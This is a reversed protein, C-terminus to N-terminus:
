NLVEALKRLLEERAFPKKLIAKPEPDFTGTDTAGTMYIIPLTYHQGRLAEALQPGSMVAMSVDTLLLDIHTNSRFLSMAEMGNAAVLPKYNADILFMEILMRMHFEDDVIVVKKDQGDFQEMRAISETRTEEVAVPLFVFFSTGGTGTKVDIAGGHEKAIRQAMPLGLGTGRGIEKSTYFPTWINPLHEPPIGKGTDRIQFVVFVGDLGAENFTTNQATIHLEGGYPEMEDRANIVINMLLQIIQTADCRVPFTGPVTHITIRINKPFSDRIMSGLETMLYEAKVSKMVNGNTGRVFASIQNSMETGRRGTSQMADLVRSINPPLIDFHETLAQRLIETGSVFVQLLNRLDHNFGAHMHGVLEIRNDSMAQKRLHHNEHARVVADSLRALSDKLLDNKLFYDVAGSRLYTSATRHDISGTVLIVPVDKDKLMSIAEPGSFTPLSFDVLVVDFKKEKIISEFAPRDRAADVTAVDRLERQVLRFDNDSDEVFLVRLKQKM